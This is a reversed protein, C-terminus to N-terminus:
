RLTLGSKRRIDALVGPSLEDGPKGPVTIIFKEGSKKYNHHDGTTGRYIWGNQELLRTVDRVKV